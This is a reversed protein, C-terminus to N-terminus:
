KLRVQTKNRYRLKFHNLFVKLELKKSPGNLNKTWFSTIWHYEWFLASRLWMKSTESWWCYCASSQWIRLSANLTLPPGSSSFDEAQLKRSVPCHDRITFPWFMVQSSFLCFALFHQGQPNMRPYIELYVVWAKPFQRPVMTSYILGYHM